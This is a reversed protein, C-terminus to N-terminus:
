GLPYNSVNWRREVLTQTDVGLAPRGAEQVRYAEGLTEYDRLRQLLAKQV